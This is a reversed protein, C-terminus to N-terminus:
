LQMLFQLMVLTTMLRCNMASLLIINYSIDTIYVYYNTEAAHYRMVTLVYNYLSVETEFDGDCDSDTSLQSMSPATDAVNCPNLNYRPIRGFFVEFPSTGSLFEYIYIYNHMSSHMYLYQVIIVGNPRACCVTHLPIPLHNTHTYTHPAHAHVCFSGIYNYVREHM